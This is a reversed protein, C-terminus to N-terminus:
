RTASGVLAEVAAREKPIAETLVDPGSETCHVDDEIRIGGFGRLSNMTLFTQAKELDVQDKYPATLGPDNLIAPVFYIGPEITFCMGPELDLDLRLYALGFQESRRRDTGYHVQDGFGEMDHVDLGILHGVGHPFFLSHAGTEFLADPQGKLIGLQSLGDAIM